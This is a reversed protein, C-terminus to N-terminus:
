VEPNSRINRYITLNRKRFTDLASLHNQESECPKANNNQLQSFDFLEKVVLLRSNFEEAFNKLLEEEISQFVDNQQQEYFELCERCLHAAGLFSFSLFYFFILCTHVNTHWLSATVPNTDTLQSCNWSKLSFRVSHESLDRPALNQM